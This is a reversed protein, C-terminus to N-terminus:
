VTKLIFYLDAFFVVTGVFTGALLQIPFSPVALAYEFAKYTFVFSGAVTLVTNVFLMLFRNIQKIEQGMNEDKAVVTAKQRGFDVNKTMERYERNEQRARLIKCREELEASRVFKLPEPLDVSCEQILEHVFFRGLAVRRLIKLSAVNATKSKLCNELTNKDDSKWDLDTSKLLEKIESLYHDNLKM